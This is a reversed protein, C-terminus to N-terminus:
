GTGPAPPLMQITGLLRKHRHRGHPTARHPVQGPRCRHDDLRHLSTAPLMRGHIVGSAPRALTARHRAPGTRMTSRRKSPARSSRTHRNSLRSNPTSRARADLTETQTTNSLQAYVNAIPVQSSHQGQIYIGLKRFQKKVENIDATPPLELDAYYDRSMDAKM